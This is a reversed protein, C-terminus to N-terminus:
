NKSETGTALVYNVRDFATISDYAKVLPDKENWYNTIFDTICQARAPMHASNTSIGKSLGFDEMKKQTRVYTPAAGSIGSAMMAFGLDECNLQSDVVAHLEPEL